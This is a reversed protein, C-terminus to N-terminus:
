DKHVHSTLRFTLAVKRLAARSGMPLSKRLNTLYHIMPKDLLRSGTLLCTIHWMGYPKWVVPFFIFKAALIVFFFILSFYLVVYFFFFCMQM